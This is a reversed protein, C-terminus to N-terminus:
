QHPQDTQLPPTPEKLMNKVKEVTSKLERNEQELGELQAIGAKHEALVSVLKENEAKLETLQQQLQQYNETEKQLRQNEEKLQAIDSKMIAMSQVAKNGKEVTEDMKGIQKKLATNDHELTAVQEAIQSLLKKISTEGGQKGWIGYGTVVGVAFVVILGIFFPISFFPTRASEKSNM